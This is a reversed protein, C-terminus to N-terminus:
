NKVNKMEEFDWKSKLKVYIQQSIFQFLHADKDDGGFGQSFLPCVLHLHFHVWRWM